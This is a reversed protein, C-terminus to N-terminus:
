PQGRLGPDGRRRIARPEDLREVGMADKVKTSISSIQNLNTPTTVVDHAVIPHHEADVASRVDHGVIGSGRGSMAMARADPDTLSVQGDPSAAGQTEMARLMQM